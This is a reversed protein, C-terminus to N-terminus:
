SDACKEFIAFTVCSNEKCFSFCNLLYRILVLSLLNLFIEYKNLASTFFAM